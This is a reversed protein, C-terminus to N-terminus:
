AIIIHWNKAKLFDSMHFQCVNQQNMTIKCGILTKYWINLHFFRQKHPTKKGRNQKNRSLKFDSNM